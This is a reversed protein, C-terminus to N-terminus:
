KDARRTLHQNPRGTTFIYIYSKGPKWWDDGPETALLSRGSKTATIDWDPPVERLRDILESVTM